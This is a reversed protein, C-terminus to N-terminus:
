VSSRVLRLASGAATIAPKTPSPDRVSSARAVLSASLSGSISSSSEIKM